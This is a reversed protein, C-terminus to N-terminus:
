AAHKQTNYHQEGSNNPDTYAPAEGEGGSAQGERYTHDIGDYPNYNSGFTSAQSREAGHQAGLEAPQGQGQTQTSFGYGGVASYPKTKVPEGDSGVQTSSQGSSLASLPVGPPSAQGNPPPAHAPASAPAVVLRAQQPPYYAGQDTGFPRAMGPALPPAGTPSALLPHPPLPKGDGKPTDPDNYVDYQGDQLPYTNPIEGDPGAHVDRTSPTGLKAGARGRRRDGITEQRDHVRM